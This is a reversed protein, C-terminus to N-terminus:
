IMVGHNVIASTHFCPLNISSVPTTAFGAIFLGSKVSSYEM